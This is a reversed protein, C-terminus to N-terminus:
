ILICLQFMGERSSIGTQNIRNRALLHNPITSHHHRAQDEAPPRTPYAASQRNGHALQNNNRRPLPEYNSENSSESSESSSGDPAIGDPQNTAAARQTANRLVPVNFVEDEENEEFITQATSGASM